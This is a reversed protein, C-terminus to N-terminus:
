KEIVYPSLYPNSLRIANKNRNIQLSKIKKGCKLAIVLVTSMMGIVEDVASLLLNLDSDEVILYDSKCLRTNKIIFDSIVGIEHRPHPKILIKVAHYDMNNFLYKITSFENFGLFPVGNPLYGFDKEIPELVFLLLKKNLPNVKKKFNNIAYESISKVSLISKEIGQHGVVIVNEFFSSDSIFASLEKLLENKAGEDMIFISDTLHLQLEDRDLLCNLYNGWYDFLFITYFGSAKCLDTMKFNLKYNVQACIIICDDNCCKIDKRFTEGELFNLCKKKKESCWGDFIWICEKGTNKMGDYIPEAAYFAGPDCCYFYIRNFETLIEEFKEHKAKKM